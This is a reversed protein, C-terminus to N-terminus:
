RRIYTEVHGEQITDFLGHFAELFKYKAQSPSLDLSTMWVSNRLMALKDDLPGAHMLLSKEIKLAVWDCGKIVAHTGPNRGFKYDLVRDMSKEAEVYVGMHGSHKLPSAMDGLYAESIDHLLADALGHNMAPAEIPTNSRLQVERLAAMVVLSHQAVSYFRKTHGTYRCLNSLAHAIDEIFVFNPNLNLPDVQFGTFTTMTNDVLNGGYADMRQEM